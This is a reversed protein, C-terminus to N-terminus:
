SGAATQAIDRRANSREVKWVKSSRHLFLLTAFGNIHTKSYEQVAVGTLRNCWDVDAIGVLPSNCVTWFGSGINSSGACPLRPAVM